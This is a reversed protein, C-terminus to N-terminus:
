ICRCVVLGSKGKLMDSEMVRTLLSPAWTTTPLFGRWGGGLVLAELQSHFASRTTASREMSMLFMISSRPSWAKLVWTGMGLTLEGVRNEKEGPSNGVLM